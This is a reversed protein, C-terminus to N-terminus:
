TALKAATWNSFNQGVAWPSQAVAKALAQEQKPTEKRPRGPSTRRRLAQEGDRQYAQHLRYITSPHCALAQAIREVTWGDHWKLLIQCRRWVTKDRTRQRLRKVRRRAGRAMKLVIQKSAM